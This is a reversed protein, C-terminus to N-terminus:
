RTRLSRYDQLRLIAVADEGRLRMTIEKPLNMQSVSANPTNYNSSPQSALSSGSSGGSALGGLLGSAAVLATGAAIEAFGKGASFGAAVDGVGLAILFAGYKAGIDALSKLLSKGAAELVDGGTALSQGIAFGLDSLGNTLGQTLITTNASEIQYNRLDNVFGKVAPNAADYGRSILDQLAARANSIKAAASDFGAFAAAVNGGFAATLTNTERLGKGFSLLNDNLTKPIFGDFKPISNGLSLLEKSLLQVPQQADTIAQMNLKVAVPLEFPKLQKAYDGLLRAVDQPLTDGITRPILSKVEVPKLDLSGGAGRLKDLAQSTNVLDRAFGQFARSSTSVGADVLTKLGTALANVRRELVEIESPTNGLLNDLATLRALEERLKKIADATKKSAKDVGELRAIEAELSKILPNFQLTERETGADERAEKVAKLEERLSALLGVTGTSQGGLFKLAIEADTLAPTLNGGVEKSLEGVSGKLQDVLQKQNLFEVNANALNAQLELVARSGARYTEVSGGGADFVAVKIAGTKNFEDAQEKLVQYKTRLEELKQTAAPLNLAAQAAKQQQLASTFAVVQGASIGTARGLSDIATVASPVLEALQRIVSNLEQQELATLSAKSALENYRELLPNVSAALQDAKRAQEEYSALARDSATVFYYIGGALAAVAAIAVGVPGTAFALIGVGLGEVAAGALAAGATISPLAALLGGVALLLPGVAAAAVGLAVIFQQTGPDLNTFSEVLGDLAGSVSDLISPLDVARSIADGLKALSQQASQALNELQNALGGTVRPAKALETTLREIFDTSSQGAKELQKSIEESDVSGFLKQLATAVSPAAEIVPRLDTALVKGKASLQALQVTVRDLDAASGGTLAIANAFERLIKASQEATVGVSRLRIDGKVAQEFGIGPARAILELEKLRAATATAAQGVAVVPAVGQTILDQTNIANLGKQLSEMKGSAAVAATAVLTLPLTVYTTLAQGAQKAYDGLRGLGKEVQAMKAEFDDIQAAVRINIEGLTAM